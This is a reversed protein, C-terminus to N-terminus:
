KRAAVQNISKIVPQMNADGNDTGSVYCTIPATDIM